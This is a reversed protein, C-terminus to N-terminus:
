NVLEGLCPLVFDPARDTGAIAEVDEESDVGSLVLVTTLGAKKGAQIDMDIRDGVIAAKEPSVGLMDLSFDIMYRSPKGIVESPEREAAGSLAGISAGAGPALGEETPYTSDPNTAIFDAGALLASLGAYIKDYTLGRDMGAVVFFAEEASDNSLIELGENELEKKLGEEGVVYCEENEYNESIYLATAYGSTIIESKDVDLGLRSLKGQYAKRTQTSNNTLFCLKKDQKRLSQIAGESGEVVSDGVYLVGDLDLLLADLENLKNKFEHM